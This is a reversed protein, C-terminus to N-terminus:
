LSTAMDLADSFFSSSRDFDDPNEHAALVLDVAETVSPVVYHAPHRPDNRAAPDRFVGTRVLVSQWPAGAENAGRIDSAPNDGVMFIHRLPGHAREQEDAARRIQKLADGVARELDQPERSAPLRAVPLEPAEFDPGHGQGARSQAFELASAFQASPSATSDTTPPSTAEHLRRRWRGLAYRAYDYTISHPKGVNTVRLTTGTLEHFLSALCRQFAGSAFRPVPYAGAFVFDQNCAVYPVSQKSGSGLPWGGRLVDCAIQLDTSWDVPDHLVFVGEIPRQPDELPEQPWSVFPYRTPDDRALMQPTVPDGLGYARAVGVVDRCGLVLTRGTFTKALARLPTHSAVIQSGCLPVGTGKWVEQAKVDELVGGGNTVCVFPVNADYLRRLAAGAGDLGKKGRLLVGDIDFVVGVRSVGRAAAKAAM